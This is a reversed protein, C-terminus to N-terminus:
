QDGNSFEDSERQKRTHPECAYGDTAVNSRAGGCAIWGTGACECETATTGTHRAEGSAEDKKSM